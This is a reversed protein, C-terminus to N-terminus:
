LVAHTVVARATEDGAAATRTRVVTLGASVREAGRRKLLFVAMRFMVSFGSLVADDVVKQLM